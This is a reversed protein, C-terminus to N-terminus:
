EGEISAISVGRGALMEFDPSQCRPCRLCAHALEPIFHMAESEDTDKPGSTEALTFERACPRCRFRAPETELVIQVGALRPESAPMIEKLAYDFVERAITQLEGIRVVLKTIRAIGGQEAFELASRIVAEALAFEHM